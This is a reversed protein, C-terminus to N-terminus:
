RTATKASTHAGLRSEKKRIKKERTANSMRSRHQSHKYAFTHSCKTDYKLWVGTQCKFLSRVNMCKEKEKQRINKPSFFHFDDDVLAFRRMAFCVHVDPASHLINNILENKERESRASMKEREEAQTQCSALYPPNICFVGAFFHKLLTQALALLFISQYFKVRFLSFYFVLRKSHQLHHFPYVKNRPIEVTLYKSFVSIAIRNEVM